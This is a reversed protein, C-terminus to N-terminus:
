RYRRALELAFPLAWEAAPSLDTAFLINNLPTRRSSELNKMTHGCPVDIRHLGTIRDTGLQQPTRDALPQTLREPRAQATESKTSPVYLAKRSARKAPSNRALKEHFAWSTEM